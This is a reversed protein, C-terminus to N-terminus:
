QKKVEKPLLIQLEPINREQRKHLFSLFVVTAVAIGLIKVFPLFSLIITTDPTKNKLMAPVFDSNAFCFIVAGLVLLTFIALSIITRRKNRM